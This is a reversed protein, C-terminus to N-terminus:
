FITNHHAVLVILLVIVQIIMYKNIKYAIEGISFLAIIELHVRISGTIASKNMWDSARM